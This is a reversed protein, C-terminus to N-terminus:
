TSVFKESLKDCDIAINSKELMDKMTIVILMPKEISIIQMSLFLGRQLQTGEIVNVILDIDKELLFDRTVAEEPSAPSLSYTGPLDFIEIEEDATCSFVGKKIDVTVGPFNGVSQRMGTLKNFITSKGSNPQGAL